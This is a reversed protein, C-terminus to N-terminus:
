VPRLQGDGYIKYKYTTLQEVGVPGRAHLKGTAIGIEAGMGFEGGDAFQTSTNHMVIASDTNNLFYDVAVKDEALISETHHSGYTNIHHVADQVNRVTKVSIKAALYETTWDEDHAPQIRSDLKQADADGVIDCGGDLLSQIINQATDTSLSQDLLLTEAAGCIGTRRLKANMVVDRALDPRASSHVYVHCIGDLHLFTPMRAEQQVREVLSKGGRPVIVDIYDSAHLMEDVMTRDPTPIMTLSNEPINNKSFSDQLIKALISASYFSESGGRLIVANHSKLCLGAADVTVNPRSEYIMGLVGIPVSVRQILLGNPRTTEALIKGVPSPLKAIELLGNAMAEIRTDTLLLRDQMAQAMNKDQAAQMDKMNEALIDAAHIRLDHAAAILAKSVAEPDTVALARAAIRSKQGIDRMVTQYNPSKHKECFTKM